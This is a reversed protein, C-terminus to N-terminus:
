GPPLIDDVALRGICQGEVELSLESGSEFRAVKRYAASKGRGAPEGHVEVCRRALDVIWYAPVGVSAYKRLKIGADMGYSSEAVEAILVFRDLGPPDKPYDEPRGRVIGIDLEPRWFRGQRAPKEESVYYGPLVLSRLCNALRMVAINHPQGRTMEVLRGALLEVRRDEPIIGTRWMRDFQDVTLRYAPLAKTYATPGSM